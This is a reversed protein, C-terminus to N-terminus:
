PEQPATKSAGKRVHGASFGLAPAKGPAEQGAMGEEAVVDSCRPPAPQERCGAGWGRAGVPGRPRPRGARRASTQTRRATRPVRPETNEKGQTKACGGAAQLYRRVEQRDKWVRKRDLNEQDESKSRTNKPFRKPVYKWPMM